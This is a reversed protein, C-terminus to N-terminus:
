SNQINSFPHLFRYALPVDYYFHIFILVFQSIWVSSKLSLKIPLLLGFCMKPDSLLIIFIPNLFSYRLLTCLINQEIFLLKRDTNSISVCNLAGLNQQTSLYLIQAPFVYVLGKPGFRFMRFQTQSSFVFYM